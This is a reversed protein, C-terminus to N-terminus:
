AQIIPGLYNRLHDRWGAPWKDNAIKKLSFYGDPTPEIRGATKDNVKLSIFTLYRAGKVAPQTSTSTPVGLHLHTTASASPYYCSASAPDSFGGRTLNEETVTKYTNPM